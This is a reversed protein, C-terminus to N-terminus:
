GIVFIYVSMPSAAMCPALQESPLLKPNLIKGLSIEDDLRPFWHYRKGKKQAWDTNMKFVGKCDMGCFCKSVPVGAGWGCGNAVVPWM